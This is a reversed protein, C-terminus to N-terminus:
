SASRSAAVVAAIRSPPTEIPVRLVVGDMAIELTGALGAPAAAEGKDGDAGEDDVVVPVFGADEDDFPLV